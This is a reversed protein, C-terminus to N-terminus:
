FNEAFETRELVTQQLTPSLRNFYESYGGIRVILNEHRAPDALAALLEARSLCSVQLQMGGQAFYGQVLAPLCSSLLKKGLRINLVPTGLAQRQPLSAASNLLATPGKKDKGHVAGISDALPEGAARGDPTAAIEKGADAYTAFQISAPLFAGGLYPTDQELSAFVDAAYRAALQDAISDDVGFCPCARLRRLFHDEQRALAALFEPGTYEKEDFVLAKVALLSDIVNILGAFNIVSWYYRAGGANFDQGKDICDDILLSRVPQPRFEARRRRHQNVLDLTLAVEQQTKQILGNYFSAFDPVQQLNDALYDSFILLLNIGADLSGVNSIGELMTETCGGGNFRLRDAATIHPFRRALEEQYLRENYFAPQGCGTLLAACAAEWIETPTEDTVRLELSPRRLGHVARLCQLTLPQCDPGLASSWGNNQDVNKFFARLLETIDEGRHYPSLGADLRGPNDCGDAYYIFNWALVAEYLSTAPQFPVKKLATLLSQDAGAQELQKICREHYIRLGTIIELLGDRFDGEDLQSVRSAYSDLGESLIRPYNPLSHTYIFGGVAHVPRSQPFLLQVEQDLAALEAAACGKGLLIEQNVTFTFSYDPSVGYGGLYKQGHPYLLEGNYAPFPMSEWFSRQAHAFRYFRSREPCAFFAAAFPEDIKKFAQSIAM